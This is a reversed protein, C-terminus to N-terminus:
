PNKKTLPRLRLGKGGAMIVLTNITSLNKKYFKSFKEQHEHLEIFDVVKKNKNVFLLFNVRTKKFINDIKKIDDTQYVFKPNKNYIKEISESLNKKKLLARRVDADTLIGLLKGKKNNIYVFQKHTSNIIKLCNLITENEKVAIKKLLSKKM